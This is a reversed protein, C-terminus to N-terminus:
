RTLTESPREGFLLRYQECFHGMHWFGADLAAQKISGSCNAAELLRYRVANLRLNRMVVCPSVGLTERFIVEIRRRSLGLEHCLMSADLQEPPCTEILEIARRLLAYRKGSRGGRTPTSSGWGSQLAEMFLTLLENELIERARFDRLLSDAEQMDGRLRAVLAQLKLCEATGVRIAVGEKLAHDPIEPFCKEVAGLFVPEPVTISANSYGVPTLADLEGGPPFFGMFGDGHTTSFNYSHGPQPCKNVFILTFHGSPMAGRFHYQNGLEVYDLAIRPCLVRGIRSPMVSAGLKVVELHTGSIAGILEEPGLCLSVTAPNSPVLEKV